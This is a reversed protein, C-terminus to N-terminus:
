AEAGNSDRLEQPSVKPPWHGIRKLYLIVDQIFRNQNRMTGEAEYMDKRHEKIFEQQEWFMTHYEQITTNLEIIEKDKEILKATNQIKGLFYFSFLLTLAFFFGYICFEHQKIKSPLNKVWKKLHILTTKMM